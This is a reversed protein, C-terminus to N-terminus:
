FGFNNDVFLTPPYQSQSQSQSQQQHLQHTSSVSSNSAIPTQPRFVSEGIKSLKESLDNAYAALLGGGITKGETVFPAAPGGGGEIRDISIQRKEQATALRDISTRLEERLRDTESAQIQREHALREGDAKAQLYSTKLVKKEAKLRSIQEALKTNEEKQQELQTMLSQVVKTQDKLAKAESMERRAQDIADLACDRSAQLEQIAWAHREREELADQRIQELETRTQALEEEAVERSAVAGEYRGVSDAFANREVELARISEELAHTLSKKEDRLQSVEGEWTSTSRVRFRAAAAEESNFTLGTSKILEGLREELAKHLLSRQQLLASKEKARYIAMEKAVEYEPGEVVRVTYILNKTHMRSYTNDFTISVQGKSPAEFLGNVPKVHSNVRQYTIIETDNFSVSFGIDHNKTHFKWVIIFGEEVHFPIVYQRLVRKQVPTEDALLLDISSVSANIKEDDPVEGDKYEEDLFAMFTDSQLIEPIALLQQLYLTLPMKKQQIVESNDIRRISRRGASDRGRDFSLGAPPDVGGLTSSSSGLGGGGGNGFVSITAGITSVAAKIDEAAGAVKSGGGLKMQRFMDKGILPLVPLKSRPYRRRLQADFLCFASYSRQIAYMHQGVWVRVTFEHDAYVSPDGNVCLGYDFVEVGFGIGDSSM